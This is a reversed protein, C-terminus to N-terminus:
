ATAQILTGHHGQEDHLAHAIRLAVDSPIKQLVTGDRTDVVAVVVTDLQPDISFQLHTQSEALHRNLRDLQQQVDARAPTAGSPAPAAADPAKGNVGATTAPLAL